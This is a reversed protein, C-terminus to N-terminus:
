EGHEDLAVGADRLVRAIIDPDFGRRALAAAVRHADRHPGRIGAGSAPSKGRTPKAAPRALLTAAFEACAALEEDGPAAGRRAARTALEPEVGRALLAAAVARRPLRGRRQIGEAAADAVLADNLWGDRVLGEVVEEVISPEHGRRSLRERLRASPVSARALARLADRRAAEVNACRAVAASLAEDWAAGPRVGLASADSAALVAVVRRGVRVRRLNPDKPDAEVAVICPGDEFLAETDGGRSRIPRRDPSAAGPRSGERGGKTPTNRPQSRKM